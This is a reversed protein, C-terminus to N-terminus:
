YKISNTEDQGNYFRSKSHIIEKFDRDTGNGQISKIMTCASTPSVLAIFLWKLSCFGYSSAYDYHYM